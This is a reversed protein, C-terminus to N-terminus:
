CPSLLTSIKSLPRLLSEADSIPLKSLIEMLFTCDAMLQHRQSSLREKKEESVAEPVVPADLTHNDTPEGESTGMLSNQEIMEHFAIGLEEGFIEAVQTCIETMQSTHLIPTLVQTLIRLQKAIQQAAQSPMVEEKEQITAMEERIQQIGMLLREKMIGTLKSHIGELHM